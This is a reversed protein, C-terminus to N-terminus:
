MHAFMDLLIPVLAIYRPLSAKFEALGLDFLGMSASYTNVCQSIIYEM